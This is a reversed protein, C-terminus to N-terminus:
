PLDWTLTALFHTRYETSDAFRDGGWVYYLKCGNPHQIYTDFNAHQSFSGVNQLKGSKSNRMNYEHAPCDDAGWFGGGDCESDTHYLAHKGEAAYTTRYSSYPSTSYCGIDVDQYCASDYWTCGAFYCSGEEWYSSCPYWGSSPSGACLGGFWNCHNSNAQCSSQNNDWNRCNPPCNGYAGYRSSEAGSGWHAATFDRIMQWYGSYGSASTWGTTRRVLAAYFESDGPHSGIGFISDGTDKSYAIGYRIELCEYGENCLSSSSSLPQVTYPISWGKYLYAVNRDDAHNRMWIAPFFKHALDYELRDPVGDYDGDSGFAPYSCSSCTDAQCSTSSCADAAVPAPCSSDCDYYLGYCTTNGVCNPHNIYYCPYGAVKEVCVHCGTGRCGNWTQDGDSNNDCAPASAATVRAVPTANAPERAEWPFPEAPREAAAALPLLLALAALLLSRPRVTTTMAYELDTM